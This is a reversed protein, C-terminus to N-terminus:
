VIDGEYIEKGNKDKIETFQMLVIDNFNVSYNGYSTKSKSYGVIIKSTGFHISKVDVMRKSKKLWAKFKIERM